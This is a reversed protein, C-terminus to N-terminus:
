VLAADAADILHADAVALPLEPPLALREGLAECRREAIVPVRDGPAPLDGFVAGVVRGVEVKDEASNEPPFSRPDAATCSGRARHGRHAAIPCPSRGSRPPM